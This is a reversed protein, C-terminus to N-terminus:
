SARLKADHIIRALYSLHMDTAHGLVFRNHLWALFIVLTYGFLRLRPISVTNLRRSAEHSRAVRRQADLEVFHGESDAVDSTHHAAPTMMGGM